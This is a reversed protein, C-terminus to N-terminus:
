ASAAFAALSSGHSAVVFGVFFSQLPQFVYGVLEPDVGDFSRAGGVRPLNSLRICTIPFRVNLMHVTHPIETDTSSTVCARGARGPRVHQLSDARPPRHLGIM